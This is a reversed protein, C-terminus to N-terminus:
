ASPPSASLPRLRVPAQSDWGSASVASGIAQAQPSPPFTSQIDISKAERGPEVAKMAHAADRRAHACHVVGRVHVLGPGNCLLLLRRTEGERTRQILMSQKIADITGYM